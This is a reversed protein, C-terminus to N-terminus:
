GKHTRECEKARRYSGAAFEVIDSYTRMMEDATIDPAIWHTGDPRVRVVERSRRPEVVFDNEM